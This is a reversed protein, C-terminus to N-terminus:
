ITIFRRSKLGPNQVRSLDFGLIAAHYQDEISIDAPIREMRPDEMVPEELEGEILPSTSPLIIKTGKPLLSLKYAEIAGLPYLRKQIKM